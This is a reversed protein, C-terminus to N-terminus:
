VAGGGIGACRCCGAVRGDFCQKFFAAEGAVAAEFLFGLESEIGDSCHLGTAGVSGGDGGTIGECTM